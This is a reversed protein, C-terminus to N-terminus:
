ASEISLLRYPCYTNEPMYQFHYTLNVIAEEGRQELIVRVSMRDGDVVIDGPAVEYEYITDLGGAAYMAPKGDMENIMDSPFEYAYGLLDQAVQQVEELAYYPVPAGEWFNQELGNETYYNGLIFTSVIYVVQGNNGYARATPEQLESTSGVPFSFFNALYVPQDMLKILGAKATNEDLMASETTPESAPLSSAVPASVAPLSSAEPLEGMTSDCGALLGVTFLLCIMISLGRKGM